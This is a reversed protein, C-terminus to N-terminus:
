LQVRDVSTSASIACLSTSTTIGSPPFATEIGVPQGSRAPFREVQGFQPPDELSAVPGARDHRDGARRHAAQAGQGVRGAM